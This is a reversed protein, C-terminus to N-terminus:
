KEANDKVEKPKTRAAMAEDNMNPVLTGDKQQIYSGAPRDM